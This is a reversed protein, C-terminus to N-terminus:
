GGGVFTFNREIKSFVTLLFMNVTQFNMSDYVYYHCLLTGAILFVTVPTAAPHLNEKNKDNNEETCMCRCYLNFEWLLKKIMITLKKEETTKNVKEWRCTWQKEEQIKRYVNLSYTYIPEGRALTKNQTLNWNLFSSVFM